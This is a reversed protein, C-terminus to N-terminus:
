SDSAVSANPRVRGPDASYEEHTLRRVLIVTRVYRAPTPKIHTFKEAKDRFYLHEREVVMFPAVTDGWAFAQAKTDGTVKRPFLLIDGVDPLPVDPPLFELAGPEHTFPPRGEGPEMLFVEILERKPEGRRDGKRSGKRGGKLAGQLVGKQQSPM